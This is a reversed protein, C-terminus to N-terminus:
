NALRLKLAEGGDLASLTLKDDKRHWRFVLDTGDILLQDGSQQYTQRTEGGANPGHITRIIFEGDPTIEIVDGKAAGSLGSQRLVEWRGFLDPSAQGPQDSDALGGLRQAVQRALDAEGPLQAQTLRGALEQAIERGSQADHARHYADLAASLAFYEDTLAHARRMENSGPEPLPAAKSTQEHFDGTVADRYRITASVPAPGTEAGMPALTLYLGGGESQPYAAGTRIILRNGSSHSVLEGPVGLLTSIRYGQAPELMVTVDRVENVLMGAFNSRVLPRADDGPAINFLKAGPVSSVRLAFSSGPQQGLAVTTLSIGNAAAQEMQAMFSTPRAGDAVPQQDSILVVRVNSAGAKRQELAEAFSIALGEELNTLGKPKLSAIREVAEARMTGVEAAPQTLIATEGFTVIALRDTDRLSSVLEEAAAKAQSLKQGQMSGSRDIVLVVSLPAEPMPYAAHDGSFGVEVFASDTPRQPLLAPISSASICIPQACDQAKPPMVQYQRILAEFTIGSARPLFQTESIVRRAERLDENANQGATAAHIEPEIAGDQAGLPSTLALPIASLCLVSPRVEIMNNEPTGIKSSLCLLPKKRREVGKGRSLAYIAM